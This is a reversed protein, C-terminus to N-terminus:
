DTWHCSNVVGFQYYKLDLPFLSEIWYDSINAFRVSQWCCFSELFWPLHIYQTKSICSNNSNLPML